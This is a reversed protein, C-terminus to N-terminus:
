AGGEVVRYGARIGLAPSLQYGLGLFIDEARDPGGALADVELMVRWHDTPRYEVVLNLLPVFGVNSFHSDQNASILRVDADRIKATFGIDLRFKERRVLGYRYTLRYSNFQYKAMIPQESSFNLGNFTVAQDFQGKYTATLPAYLATVTHRDNFTYGIRGRFFAIPQIEFNEKGLDFRTGGTNPISIRNYPTGLVLGSETDVWFQANAASYSILLILLFSATKKFIRSLLM